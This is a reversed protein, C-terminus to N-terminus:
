EPFVFPVPESRAYHGFVGLCGPINTKLFVPEVFPNYTALKQRDLQDFFRASAPDMSQIYVQGSSGNRHTFAPEITITIPRGDGSGTDFYVARGFEFVGFPRAGNCESRYVKNGATRVTSDVTRRMEFRYANAQGPTDTFDIVVGEHDGYVDKFSPVYGVREIKPTLQTVTTEAHYTQGNATVDLAYTQGQRTPLSGRYFFTPQCLFSDLRMTPKLVDTIGEASRIVVSADTVFLDKATTLASFYGTSRSLYLTPVEGPVLMCEISLTPTYPQVPVTITKECSSMVLVMLILAFMLLMLSVLKVSKYRHM